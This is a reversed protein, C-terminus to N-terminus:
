WAAGAGQEVTEIADEGGGVMDQNGVDVGGALQGVGADCRSLNGRGAAMGM